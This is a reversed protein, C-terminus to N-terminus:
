KSHSFHRRELLRRHGEQGGQVCCCLVSFLSSFFFTQFLEKLWKKKKPQSTHNREGRSRRDSCCMRSGDARWTQTAAGNRERWPWNKKNKKRLTRKSRNEEWLDGSRRGSSSESRTVNRSPRQKIRSSRGGRSGRCLQDFISCCVDGRLEKSM